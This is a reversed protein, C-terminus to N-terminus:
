LRYRELWQLDDEDSRIVYVVGDGFAVVRRDSPLSVREVLNGRADFVDYTRMEADSPASREVWLRGDPAIRATRHVTPPMYDPWDVNDINPRPPRGVRRRGNEVHITVGRSTMADAWAEKDETTIRVPKFDAPPGETAAGDSTIWQISYDAYRVLAVTGDPTVAWDDQPQYAGGGINVVAAGPGAPEMPPFHVYGLTDVVDASRDWRLVPAIGRVASEELGPLMMGALDFYIRGAQDVGRPLIPYGAPHRLPITEESLRGDPLIVNFRRNMIDSMLTSDGPLAYLPGPMQFEGPGGGQRGLQEYTGSAFDLRVLTMEIRDSILVQGNSLERVGLVASFPEPFAADPAGLEVSRAASQAAVTHTALGLAALTALGARLVTQRM